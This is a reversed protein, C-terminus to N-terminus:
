PGNGLQAVFVDANAGVPVGGLDTMGITTASGGCDPFPSNPQNSGVFRTVGSGNVKLIAPFGGVGGSGPVVGTAYVNGLSDAAVGLGDFVVGSPTSSALTTIRYNARVATTNAGGYAGSTAVTSLTYQAFVTRNGLIAFALLPLALFWRQNRRNM